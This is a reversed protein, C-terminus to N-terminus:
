EPRKEEIMPNGYAKIMAAIQADNGGKTVNRSMLSVIQSTPWTIAEGGYDTVTYVCGGLLGMWFLWIDDADPCLAMFLDTQAIDTYFCGPPYM